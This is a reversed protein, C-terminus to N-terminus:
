HPVHSHEEDGWFRGVWWTGSPSLGTEEDRERRRVGSWWRFWEISSNPGGDNVDELCFSFLITAISCSWTNSSNMYMSTHYEHRSQSRTCVPAMGSLSLILWGLNPYTYVTYKNASRQWNGGSRPHTWDVYAQLGLWLRMCQPFQICQLHTNYACVCWEQYALCKTWSGTSNSQKASEYWELSLRLIKICLKEDM